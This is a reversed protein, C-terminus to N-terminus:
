GVLWGVLCGIFWGVFLYVVLWGFLMSVFHDVSLFFGMGFGM